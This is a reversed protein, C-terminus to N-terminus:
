LGALQKMRVYTYAQDSTGAKSWVNGKLIQVNEFKTGDPFKWRRQGVGDGGDGLDSSSGSEVTTFSVADGEIDVDVLIRVHYTSTGERLYNVMMDGARLNKPSSVKPHGQIGETNTIGVAESKGDASREMDGQVLFNAAQIALGSCDTSVGYKSLFEHLGQSTKDAILNKAICEELFKEIQAPTAKGISGGFGLSSIISNVKSNANRAAVVKALRDGKNIHYPPRVSVFEGPSVEIQIGTFTKTFDAMKKELETEAGGLIGDDTKGMTPKLEGILYKWTTGGPDVKSDQSKISGAYRYQFQRIAQVTKDDVTGNVPISYGWTEKLLKQVTLVDAPDNVGKDGVSQKIVSNAQLNTPPTDVVPTTPNTVPTTTTTDKPKEEQVPTAKGKLSLWTKGGADIKGDPKAFGISKQYAKIAAITQKGCDGDVDIKLLTQVIKVDDENNKGGEGVSAKIDKVAVATNAATAAPTQKLAADVKKLKEALDNHKSTDYPNAHIELFKAIQEQLEAITKFFDM